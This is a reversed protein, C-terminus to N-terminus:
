RPAPEVPVYLIGTEREQLIGHFRGLKRLNELGDRTTLVLATDPDAPSWEQVEHNLYFALGYGWSRQLRYAFVRDLHRDNLLLEGHWRASLYPDLRPLIHLGALEVMLVVCLISLVVGGQKRLIGIAVIAFGGVIAIWMPGVLLQGSNYAANAPLRNMSRVASLGLAIWTAGMLAIIWRLLASDSSALHSLSVAVLLILPPVSPLIYSPLKSQSFSFFLVPFIAWCAFYFGPSDNWSHERGLEFGRRVAPILFATWPLLALITIPGFFWIPQKHQFVPTLYREFNHQFVFVRIFDPNRLACLTYWPLAIVCFSVIASPHGIHFAARWQKTALAWLGIAGGALLIAAPGKALVALGLSSGFLVLHGTVRCPVRTARSAGRLAGNRRLVSAASAMAVTISACFLMDPAAARAFGIGAVSTSFLLPASLSPNRVLDSPNAYHKRALWCLALATALAAFASPLRAAWEAPLHLLFGTAAAWYYLIPKEFWPSGYLRPTVWDGTTAMARAIWAYRPEDPGVFGIAGLHSFLCIVVTLAVVISTPLNADRKQTPESL